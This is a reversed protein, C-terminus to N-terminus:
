KLARFFESHSGFDSMVYGCGRATMVCQRHSVSENKSDRSSLDLLLIVLDDQHIRGIVKGRENMIHLDGGCYRQFLM